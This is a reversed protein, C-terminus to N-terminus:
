KKKDKLVLMVIVLVVTEFGDATALLQHYENNDIHGDKLAHILNTVFTVFCLLTPATLVLNPKKKIYDRLRKM